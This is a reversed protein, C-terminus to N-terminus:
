CSNHFTRANHHMFGSSSYAMISCHLPRNVYAKRQQIRKLTFAATNGADTQEFRALVPAQSFSVNPQKRHQRVPLQCDAFLCEFMVM